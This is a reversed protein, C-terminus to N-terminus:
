MTRVLINHLSCLYVLLITNYLRISHSSHQVTFRVVDSRHEVSASGGSSGMSQRAQQAQMRNYFRKKRMDMIRERRQREVERKEEEEKRKREEEKKRQEQRKRDKEEKQKQDVCPCNTPHKEGPYDTGTLLGLCVRNSQLRFLSFLAISYSVMSM